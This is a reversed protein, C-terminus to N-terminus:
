VAQWQEPAQQQSGSPQQLLEASGLSSNLVTDLICPSLQLDLGHLFCGSTM